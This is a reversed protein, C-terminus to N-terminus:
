RATATTARRPVTARRDKLREAVALDRLANDPRSQYADLIDAQATALAEPATGKGALLDAIAVTANASPRAFRTAQRYERLALWRQATAPGNNTLAHQVTGYAGGLVATQGAKEKAQVDAIFTKLAQMGEAIQKDQNADSGKVRPSLGTYVVQLGGLIDGIDSLRSIAVFDRQESAEGAVFRSSKWSAFYEAMTPVMTVLAGFAEAEIPTWKDAAAQLEGAQKDLEDVGGKLVNADPLAEGFDAKGNGNLDPTVGQATFAPFTGWRTSEIVGCLNGPKALTRGDSLKLDFPVLNDGGEEASTGADLIM